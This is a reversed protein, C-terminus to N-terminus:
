GENEEATELEMKEAPQGTRKEKRFQWPPTPHPQQWLGVRKRRATKELDAWDQNKDYATYHWVMGRRLMEENVNIGDAYVIAVIRGYRDKSKQEIRVRKSFILDSLVEKSRTGYDQAKEPADIGHMRIRVTKNEDTLLRFTDGDSVAVVRGDTKEKVGDGNGQHSSKNSDTNTCALLLFVPVIFHFYLQSSSFSKIWKASLVPRIRM